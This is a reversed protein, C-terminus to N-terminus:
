RLDQDQSIARMADRKARGLKRYIRRYTSQKQKAATQYRAVDMRDWELPWGPRRMPGLAMRIQANFRDKESLEVRYWEGQIWWEELMCHLAREMSRAAHRNWLKVSFLQQPPVPCGTLLQTVRNGLYDTLGVKVYIPGKGDRCLLMYVNTGRPRGDKLYLGSDEIKM